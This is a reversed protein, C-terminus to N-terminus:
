LISFIDQSLDVLNKLAKVNRTNSPKEIQSFRFTFTDTTYFRPTCILLATVDSESMIM